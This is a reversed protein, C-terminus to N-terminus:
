AGLLCLWIPRDHHSCWIDSVRLQRGTMMEAGPHLAVTVLAETEDQCPVILGSPMVVAYAPGLDSFGLPLAPLGFQDDGPFM